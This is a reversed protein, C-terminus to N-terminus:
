EVERAPVLALVLAPVVRLAGVRDDEAFADVRDRGVAVIRDGSHLLGLARQALDLGRSSAPSSACGTLLLTRRHVGDRPHLLRLARRAPDLARSCSLEVIALIFNRQSASRQMSHLAHTVAHLFSCSTGHPMLRRRTTVKFSPLGPSREIEIAHM